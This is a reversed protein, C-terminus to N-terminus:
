EDCKLSMAQPPPAGEEEKAKESADADPGGDSQEGIHLLM